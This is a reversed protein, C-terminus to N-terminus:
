RSGLKVLHYQLVMHYNSLNQLSLDNLTAKFGFAKQCFISVTQLHTHTTPYYGRTAVRSSRANLKSMKRDAM